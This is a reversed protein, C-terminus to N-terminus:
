RNPTPMALIQASIEALPIADGDALLEAAREAGFRETALGAPDPLHLVEVPALMAGQERVMRYAAGAVRGGFEADGDSLLIISVMALARVLGSTGEIASFFSLSESARTWAMATEGLRWHIASLLTTSDAVQFRSGIRNFVELNEYELEVAAAYDGALFFSLVLAQRARTAAEEDGAALYLELARAEHARLAEGEQAVM